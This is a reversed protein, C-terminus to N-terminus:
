RELTSPHAISVRGGSVAPLIHQDIASKLHPDSVRVEGTHALEDLWQIL